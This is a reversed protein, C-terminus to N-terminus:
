QASEGDLHDAIRNYTRALNLLQRQPNPLRCKGATERLWAALERYHTGADQRWRDCDVAIYQLTRTNEDPM